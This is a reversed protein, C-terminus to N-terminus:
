NIQVGQFFVAARCRTVTRHLFVEVLGRAPLFFRENESPDKETRRGPAAQSRAGHAETAGARHKSGGRSILRVFGGTEERRREIAAAEIAAASTSDSPRFARALRTRASRGEGRREVVACDLGRALSPRTTSTRLVLLSSVTRVDRPAISCMTMEGCAV